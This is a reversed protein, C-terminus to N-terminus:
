HVKDSKCPTLATIALSRMEAKDLTRAKTLIKKFLQNSIGLDYLNGSHRPALESNRAQENFHEVLELVANHTALFREVHTAPEQPKAKPRKM